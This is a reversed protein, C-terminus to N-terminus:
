LVNLCLRQKRKWGSKSALYEVVQEDAWEQEIIIKLLKDMSPQDKWHPLAMTEFAIKPNLTALVKAPTSDFLAPHNASVPLGLWEQMVPVSPEKKKLNDTVIKFIAQEEEPTILNIKSSIRRKLKELIGLDGEEVGKGAALLRFYDVPGVNLSEPIVRLAKKNLFVVYDEPAAKGGRPKQVAKFDMGELAEPDVEFRITLGTGIAGKKGVATYFGDGFAATEGSYENRSILVNPEGKHSRTMSEYALFNRTEHGVVKLGLAKATKGRKGKGHGLPQTRLPEKNMWWALSEEAEPDGLKRLKERLKLADLKNVAYEIDVAHQILKKGNKEIWEEVYGPAVEFKKTIRSIKAWDEPEIELEYQFAKNLYRIASLIPPNLGKKARATSAHKDSFYFHLKSQRVDEFFISRKPAKANWDRLDRVVDEGNLPKTIEVMGTSNSDTHQNLFDPNKLLAEKDGRDQTM